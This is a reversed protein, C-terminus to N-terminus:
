TVIRTLISELSEQEQRRRLAWARQTEEAESLMSHVVVPVPPAVPPEEFMCAPLRYEGDVQDVVQMISQETVAPAQPAVRLEHPNRLVEEVGSGRHSSVATGKEVVLRHRTYDWMHTVNVVGLSDVKAVLEILSTPISGYVLGVAIVRHLKLNYGASGFKGVMSRPVSRRFTAYSAGASSQRKRDGIYWWDLNLVQLAGAFEADIVVHGIV